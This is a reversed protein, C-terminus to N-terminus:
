NFVYHKDGFVDALGDTEPLDLDIQYGNHTNLYEAAARYEAQTRGYDWHLEKSMLGTIEALALPTVLGEIAITTRRQLLDLPTQVYERHILYGLERRSYSPIYELASDPAQRIHNLIELCTTGYRQLLIDVRSVPVSYKFSVETLFRSLQNFDEPYHCGGGIKRTKTSTIRIKDMDLLIQDTVQEALARFTTWKGGILSYVRPGSTGIQDVKIAHSRPIQGTTETSAAVLPRVGSFRYCIDSKHIEISPFITKVSALIYDVEEETCLASGPEQVPIDTSGILVKELFPFMICVRNESNEYYVMAGNLERHLEPHDVIIHSGKTGSLYRSNIGAARNCHDVWAGTANVIVRSRLRRRIGTETDAVVVGDDDISEVLTYNLAHSKGQQQDGDQLLEIALREPASIWADYYVASCKVSSSYSPWRQFTDRTGQLRHRPMQQDKRTFFDYLSLGLKVILAGRDTVKNNIGLFRLAASFLGSTWSYLPINTELPRVYHPANELLRNREYLSERVLEFEANELYRLGGHIMRSLASSAKSCFDDKEVILVKLGQLSLERYAGIGNIGGGIIIADFAEGDILSEIARPQRMLDEM